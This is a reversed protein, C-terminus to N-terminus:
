FGGGASETGMDVVIDTLDILASDGASILTSAKSVGKDSAADAM